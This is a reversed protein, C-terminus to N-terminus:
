RAPLVFRPRRNESSISRRPRDEAEPAAHRRRLYELVFVRVASSRNAQEAFPIKAVLRSTSIGELFAIEKLEEWFASELSISTKHGAIIVSGEMMLSKQGIRPSIM